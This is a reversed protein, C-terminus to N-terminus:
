RFGVVSLQSKRTQIIKFNKQTVGGQDNETASIKELQYIPIKDKSVPIVSVGHDIYLTAANLVSDPVESM